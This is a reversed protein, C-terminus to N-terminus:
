TRHTRRRQGERARDGGAGLAHLDAGAHLYQRQAVRQAEGLLRRRDILDTVSTEDEADAAAAERAGVLGIAHGVAFAALTKGLREFDELLGPGLVPKRVLALIVAEVVDRQRRLRVLLRPRFDADGGVAGVGERL